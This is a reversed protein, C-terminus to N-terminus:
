KKKMHRLPRSSFIYDYNETLGGTMKMENSLKSFLKLYTNRIKNYSFNASQIVANTSTPIPYRSYWLIITSAM